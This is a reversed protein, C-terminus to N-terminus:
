RRTELDHLSTKNTQSQPKLQHAGGANRPWAKPHSSPSQHNRFTELVNRSEGGRLNPHYSALMILMKYTSGSPKLPGHDPDHIGWLGSPKMQKRCGIEMLRKGTVGDSREGSAATVWDWPPHSPCCWPFQSRQLKESRKSTLNILALCCLFLGETVPNRSPLHHFGPSLIIM